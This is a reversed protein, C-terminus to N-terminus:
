QEYQQTVAPTTANSVQPVENSQYQPVEAPVVQQPQGTQSAQNTDTSQTNQNTQMGYYDVIYQIRAQFAQ